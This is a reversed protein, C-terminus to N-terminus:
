PLGLIWGFGRWGRRILFIIRRHLFHFWGAPTLTLFLSRTSSALITPVILCWGVIVLAIITSEFNVSPCGTSGQALIIVTLPNTGRTGGGANYIFSACVWGEYFPVMPNRTADTDLVNVWSSGTRNWPVWFFPSIGLVDVGFRILENAHVTIIVFFSLTLM